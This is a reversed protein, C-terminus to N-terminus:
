TYQSDIFARINSITWNAEYLTKASLAIFVCTSCGEAHTEKQGNTTWFCQDNNAHYPQHNPNNCGCYCILQSLVESHDAAFQYATDLKPNQTLTTDYRSPMNPPLALTQGQPNKFSTTGVPNYNAFIFMGTSITAIILITAYLGIKVSNKKPTKLRETKL